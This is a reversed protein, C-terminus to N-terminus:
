HIDCQEVPYDLMSKMLFFDQLGIKKECKANSSYASIKPHIFNVWHQMIPGQQELLDIWHCVAVVKNEEAYGLAREM